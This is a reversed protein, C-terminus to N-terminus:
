YRAKLSTGHGPEAWYKTFCQLIMHVASTREIKVVTDSHPRSLSLEVPQIRILLSHAHLYAVEPGSTNSHRSAGGVRVQQESKSQLRLRPVAYAGRWGVM